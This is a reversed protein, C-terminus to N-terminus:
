NLNLVMKDIETVKTRFILFEMSNYLRGNPEQQRFQSETENLVSIEILNSENKDEDTTNVSDSDRKIIEILSVKM